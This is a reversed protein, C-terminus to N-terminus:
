DYGHAFIDVANLNGHNCCVETLTILREGLIPHALHERAHEADKLTFKQAIESQGLGELQPFIFWMWHSQKKGSILEKLAIPYTNIPAQV